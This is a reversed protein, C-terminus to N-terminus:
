REPPLDLYWDDADHFLEPEYANCDVLLVVRNQNHDWIM